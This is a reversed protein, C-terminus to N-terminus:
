KYESLSRNNTTTNRMALKPSQVESGLQLQCCITSNKHHGSGQRKAMCHAFPHRLMFDYSAWFVGTDHIIRTAEIIDENTEYRHFVDKRIHPSGSQIGMIVETLGVSKLKRLVEEDVM